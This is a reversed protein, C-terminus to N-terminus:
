RGVNEFFTVWYEIPELREPDLLFNGAAVDVDGDGDLDGAALAAHDSWIAEFAHIAFAGRSTQELWIIADAQLPKRMTEVPYHPLFASVFVDRDGDGDLDATSVRQAGPMTALWRHAFPFTGTNELWALGHYPKPIGDDLADGNVALVDLDGDGDVDVVEMSSYGWNPHAAQWIVAQEFGLGGRNLYAVVTEFQQSLLVVIDPRSDRDLDAITAHIAGPRPDLVHRFFRPAGGPGLEGLNELLLVAGTTRWGFAAVSLDLDGDGDLDAAGADCV